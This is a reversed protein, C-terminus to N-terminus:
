YFWIHAGTRRGNLHYHPKYGSGLGHPKDYVPERGGSALKALAYAATASSTYVSQGSLVRLVAEAIGISRGTQVSDGSIWATQFLGGGFNDELECLLAIVAVIAAISTIAIGVSEVIAIVAAATGATATVAFNGVPDTYNIPDNIAYNYLNTAEKQVEIQPIKGVYGTRIFALPLNPSTDKEKRIIDGYQDYYIKQGEAVIYKEAQPEDGYICNGSGWYGDEQLFRGLEPDYYRAPLVYKGTDADYAYGRYSVETAFGDKEEQQVGFADTAETYGLYSEAVQETRSSRQEVWKGQEVGGIIIPEGTVQSLEPEWVEEYEYM